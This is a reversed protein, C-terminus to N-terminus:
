VSRAGPKLERIFCDHMSRFERKRAESLDLDSFFRWLAISVDRVLPQEIRSFWGIFRTALRRPIRNTLPSNVDEHQLVRLIETRLTMTEYFGNPLGRNSPIPCRLAPKRRRRPRPASSRGRAGGAAATSPWAGTASRARGAPAAGRRRPATRR